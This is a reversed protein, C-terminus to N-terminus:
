IVVFTATSKVGEIDIWVSELRSFPIIKQQNVMKLAIPSWLLKPKGMLEWIIKPIVNVDSGLVLVINDIDYEGIQANIRFEQLTRKKHPM